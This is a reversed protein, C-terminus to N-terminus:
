PTEEPHPHVPRVPHAAHTAPSSAPAPGLLRALVARPTWQAPDLVPLELADLANKVVLGLETDGQMSLRRSFFLTDPDQQRQALLVFDHASASITLDAGTAGPMGAAASRPAFRQGNWAFDFAVRADRVEIRLSRDKLLALVDAPLHRALALNLATVLLVSGPYAPLRSLVAGVPAPLQRSETTRGASPNAANAPSALFRTPPLM